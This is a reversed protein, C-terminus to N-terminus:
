AKTLVAALETLRAGWVEKMRDATAKDALKRHQVNVAGKSDGKATFYVDLPTDDAMRIRMTNHPTSKRVTLEIGPLWRSRVAEDDFAQFLTTVPVGITKSKNVDYGGGRRQGM